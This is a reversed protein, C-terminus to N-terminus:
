GAGGYSGRVAGLHEGPLEANCGHEQLVIQPLSDPDAYKGLVLRM